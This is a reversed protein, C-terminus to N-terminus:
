PAGAGARALFDGLVVDSDFYTEAIARAAAAHRSYDTSIRRAGDAAEKLTRFAVLGDGAPLSRSFGTDQVLAPKGSALYRITRDSFWGSDTESYIGQAVSFEAASQQVYRRFGDADAAVARPDSLLWGHECLQRRDADDAQHIDLAVEFRESAALRPLQIIKRFEHVKLGFTRGGYVVPGFSGRWCAITTFRHTDACLAAPWHDLVAPQRVVQWDFGCTPIGCGARGINEAITFYVDHGELHTQHGSAHWFQTFGPDIDVYATRRALRRLVCPPLHGSINVLLDSEAAVVQLDAYSLGGIARGNDCVLASRHSLGFRAMTAEFFARNASLEFSAPAGAADVCDRERIREAFYVDAGLRALGLVWSLRVWAEGGNQPKNALAGAVLIRM